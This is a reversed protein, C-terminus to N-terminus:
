IYQKHIDNCISKITFDTFEDITFFENNFMLFFAIAQANSLTIKTIPAPYNWNALVKEHLKQLTCVILKRNFDDHQLPLHVALNLAAEIVNLQSVTLKLKFKNQLM